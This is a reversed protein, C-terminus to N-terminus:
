IYMHSRFFIRAVEALLNHPLSIEHAWGRCYKRITAFTRPIFVGLLTGCTCNLSQRRRLEFRVRIVCGSLGPHPITFTFTPASQFHAVTLVQFLHLPIKFFVINSSIDAYWSLSFRFNHCKSQLIIGHFFNCYYFYKTVFIKSIKFSLGKSEIHPM